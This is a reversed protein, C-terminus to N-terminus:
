DNRSNAFGHQTLTSHVSDHVLVGLQTHLSQMSEAVSRAVAQQIQETLLPALQTEIQATLGQMIQEVLANSIGQDALKGRLTLVADGLQVIDNLVPLLSDDPASDLASVSQQGKYKNMLQQMKELVPDQMIKDHWITTTCRM